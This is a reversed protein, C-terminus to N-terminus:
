RFSDNVDILARQGGRDIVDFVDLGLRHVSSRDDLNKELRM